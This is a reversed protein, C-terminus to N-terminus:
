INSPFPIPEDVPIEETPVFDDDDDEYTQEDLSEDEFAEEFVGDYEDEIEATEESDTAADAEAEEALVTDAAQQEVPTEEQQETPVEDQSWAVAVLMLALLMSKLFIPMRLKDPLPYM